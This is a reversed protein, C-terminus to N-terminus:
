VRSPTLVFHRYTHRGGILATRVRVLVWEHRWWAADERLHRALAMMQACRYGINESRLLRKEAHPYLAFVSELYPAPVAGNVEVILESDRVLAEDRAAVFLQAQMVFESTHKHGHVYTLGRLPRPTQM